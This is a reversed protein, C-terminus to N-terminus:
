KMFVFTHVELQGAFRNESLRDDVEHFDRTFISIKRKRIVMVEQSLRM